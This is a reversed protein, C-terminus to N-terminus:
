LRIPHHSHIPHSSGADVPCTESEPAVSATRSDSVSQFVTANHPVAFAM